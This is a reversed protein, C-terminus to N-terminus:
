RVMNQGAVKVLLVLVRARAMIEGAVKVSLVLVRARAMNWRVSETGRAAVGASAADPVWAVGHRRWRCIGLRWDGCGIGL